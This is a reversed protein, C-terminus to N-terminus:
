FGPKLSNKSKADWAQKRSDTDGDADGRFKGKKPLAGTTSGAGNPGQNKQETEIRNLYL